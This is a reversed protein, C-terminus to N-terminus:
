RAYRGAQRCLWRLGFPLAAMKEALCRVFYRCFSLLKPYVTGVMTWHVHAAAPVPESLCLSLYVCVSAGM